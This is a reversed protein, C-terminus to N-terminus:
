SIAPIAETTRLFIVREAIRWGEPTRVLQDRYSYSRCRGDDSPAIVKSYARANGAANAAAAIEINSVHHALPHRGTVWFSVIADIGVHRGLSLSDVDYAADATFVEGTRSFERDDIINGYRALLEIIDLRDGVELAPNTM